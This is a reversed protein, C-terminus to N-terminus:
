AVPGGRPPSPASRPPPCPCSPRDRPRACRNPHAATAHRGV